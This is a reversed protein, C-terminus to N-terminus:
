MNKTDGLGENDAEVKEGRDVPSLADVLSIALHVFPVAGGDLTYRETEVFGRRLAFELGALNSALVITQINVAELEQAHALAHLLFDSGLGRRRFAPLIRVIVTVPDHDAAPRVTSCGVVVDALRALDLCYVKSRTSVQEFTLPASPIIQNHVQLWANATVEDTVPTFTLVTMASSYHQDARLGRTAAM